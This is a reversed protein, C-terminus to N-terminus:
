QNPSSTETLAADVMARWRGAMDGMNEHHVGALIMAATPERLAVIAVRALSRPGNFGRAQADAIATSVKDVMATKSM